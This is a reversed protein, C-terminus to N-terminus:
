YVKEKFKFDTVDSSFVHKLGLLVLVCVANMHLSMMPASWRNLQMLASEFHFGVICYNYTEDVVVIEVV